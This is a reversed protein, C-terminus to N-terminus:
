NIADLNNQKWDTFTRQGKVIFNLWLRVQTVILKAVTPPPPPFTTYNVVFELDGYSKSQARVLDFILHYWRLRYLLFRKFELPQQSFKSRLFFFRFKTALRVSVFSVRATNPNPLCKRDTVLNRSTSPM